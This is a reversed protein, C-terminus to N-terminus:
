RKEIKPPPVPKAATKTQLKTEPKAKAGSKPQGPPQSTAAAPKSKSRRRGKFEPLVNKMPKAPEAKGRMAYSLQNECGALNTQLAYVVQDQNRMLFALYPQLTQQLDFLQNAAQGYQAGLSPNEDQSISRAVGDLRPLVANITAYTQYGLYMSDPRKEFQSRWEELAGLQARLAELTQNFSNRAADSIKWREPRVQTLLDNIRYDVVWIKHLLAKVQTPEMFGAESPLKQPALSSSERAEVKETQLSPSGASTAPQAAAPLGPQAGQGRAWEGPGLAILFLVIFRM